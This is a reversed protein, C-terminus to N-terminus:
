PKGQRWRREHRRQNLITLIIARNKKAEYYSKMTGAPKAVNKLEGYNQAKFKSIELNYEMYLDNLQKDSKSRLTKMRKKTM